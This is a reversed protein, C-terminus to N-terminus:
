KGLVKKVFATWAEASSPKDEGNALAEEIADIADIASMLKSSDIAESAKTVGLIVKCIAKQFAVLASLGSIRSNVQAASVPAPSAAAPLKEAPLEEIPPMDDGSPAEDFTTADAADGNPGDSERLRSALSATASVESSRVTRPPAAGVEVDVDVDAELAKQLEQSKPLYKCLRRVVTKRGMEDYHDVWPGNDKSKSKARIKDVDGKTMVEFQFGGNAFNAVAYFTVAKGRDGTYCPEHVIEPSTGLRVSFTDNEYVVCASLNVIEGSQRALKILGQYGPMFSCEMVWTHRGKSDKKKNNFPVLYAEGLTGSCDLGLEASKMVSELISAQSCELLKPQKTAAICALKILRDPTLHKPLVQAISDTYSLLLDRFDGHNTIRKLQRSEANPSETLTTTM